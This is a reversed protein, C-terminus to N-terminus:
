RNLQPIMGRLTDLFQDLAVESQQGGERMDKVVVVGKELESDGMILALLAGRRNATRMQAKMSRGEYDMDASLGAGRVRAIMGAMARRGSEGLGIGYVMLPPYCNCCKLAEMAIMVREVGIAFGVAPTAPGGLEEVLGDYRGGGGLADQAGLATHTYEFVTRTYYDLGRVLTSDVTFEVGYAALGERVVAFHGACEECLNDASAPLGKTKDACVKCDLIRLPNRDYRGQCSKCLTPLIPAIEAKLKERYAPRCAPCGISNLRTRVGTIGLAAYYALGMSIVEADLLPDGSGIAEVGVQYFQRQRGKQPRERRFMPGGYWLKDLGGNKHFSHQLYARVVGATGEPRLTLMETGPQFTYMEKEVIDTTAGIGRAFLETPEFVPTTIRGYGYRWFLDSAAAFAKEFRNGDEGFYDRTGEICRLIEEAM